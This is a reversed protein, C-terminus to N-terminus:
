AMTLQYCSIEYIEKHRERHRTSNPFSQLDLAEHLAAWLGCNSNTCLVRVPLLRKLRVISVHLCMQRWGRKVVSANHHHHWEKRYMLLRSFIYLQWMLNQNDIYELEQFRTIKLWDWGTAQLRGCHPRSNKLLSCGDEESHCVCTRTWESFLYICLLFDRAIPLKLWTNVANRPLTNAIPIRYFSDKRRMPVFTHRIDWNVLWFIM